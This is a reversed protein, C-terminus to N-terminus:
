PRMLTAVAPIGRQDLVADLLALASGVILKASPCAGEDTFSLARAKIADTAFHRSSRYPKVVPPVEVAYVTVVLEVKAEADSIDPAIKVIMGFAVLPADGVSATSPRVARAM